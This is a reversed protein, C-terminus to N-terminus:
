TFVPSIFILHQVQHLFDVGVFEFGWQLDDEGGSEGAVRCEEGGVLGEVGGAVEDDSFKEFFLALFGVGGM